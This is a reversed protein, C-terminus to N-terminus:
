RILEQYAKESFYEYGDNEWKTSFLLCHIFGNLEVQETHFIKRYPNKKLIIQIQKNETEYFIFDKNEIANFDIYKSLNKLMMKSRYWTGGTASVFPKGNYLAISDNYALTILTNKDSKQLWTVLKKGIEDNYGYNSDLFTIRDIWDPINKNTEIFANNFSGGGSHGSLTVIPNYEKFIIKISDVISVIKQGFNETQRKWAPWSKFDNELYAVVLNHMNLKKRIFRTQAAIHQIDFHWDDGENLLKGKTQEITNGNPLAYFVLNVPLSKNFKSASPANILIRVNNYLQILQEQEDFDPIDSFDKLHTKASYYDCSFILFIFSIIYIINKL